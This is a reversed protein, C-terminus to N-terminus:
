EFKNVMKPLHDLHHFKMWVVEKHHCDKYPVLYEKSRLHTQKTHFIGKIKAVLRHEIADVELQVKQKRNPRHEDRLIFTLKSIHFTLHAVFNILLKLTYMDLHLNHLNEYPGVYKANFHPALGDHMKLDQINLQVHQGVDFEVHRQTKNAHKEYWKQVHEL